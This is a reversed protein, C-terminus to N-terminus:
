IEMSKRREEEGGTGKLVEGNKCRGDNEIYVIEEFSLTYNNPLEKLVKTEGAVFFSTNGLFLLILVLNRYNKM